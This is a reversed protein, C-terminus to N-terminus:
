YIQKLLDEGTAGGPSSGNGGNEPATATPQTGAKFPLFYSKETNVAYEPIRIVMLYKRYLEPFSKGLDNKPDKVAKDIM